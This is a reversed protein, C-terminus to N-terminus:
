PGNRVPHGNESMLRYIVRIAEDRLEEANLGVYRDVSAQYYAWFNTVNGGGSFTVATGGRTKM